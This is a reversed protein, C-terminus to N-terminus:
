SLQQKLETTAKVRQLNDVVSILLKAYVTPLMCPSLNNDSSLINQYYEARVIKQPSPIRAPKQHQELQYTIKQLKCNRNCM